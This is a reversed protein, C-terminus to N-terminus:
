SGNAPRSLPETNCTPEHSFGGSSVLGLGIRERRTWLLRPQKVVRFHSVVPRCNARTPQQHGLHQVHEPLDPEDEGAGM